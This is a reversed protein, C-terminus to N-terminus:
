FTLWLFCERFLLSKLHKKFQGQLEISKIDNPLQNWWLPGVHSFSRAAFTSRQVRPVVLRKVMSQSRLGQRAGPHQILLNQLYMPAQCISLYWVKFKTRTKQEWCINWSSLFTAILPICLGWIHHFFHLLWHCACGLFFTSVFIYCDTAHLFM